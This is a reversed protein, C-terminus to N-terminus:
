ENDTLLISMVKDCFKVNKEQTRIVDLLDEKEGQHEKQMDNVEAQAKKYKDRLKEMIERM